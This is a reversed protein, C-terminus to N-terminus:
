LEQIIEKIQDYAYAKPNKIDISHWGKYNRIGAEAHGTNRMKKVEERLEKRKQKLHKEVSDVQHKIEILAERLNEPNNLNM